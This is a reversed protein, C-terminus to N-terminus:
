NSTTGRGVNSGKRRARQEKKKEVRTAEYAAVGSRVQSRWSSRDQALSDWSKRPIGCNDLTDGLMDKYRKRPRGQTRRGLCLEGYFIQKPLRNDPMRAVHGSWRLQNRSILAFISVTGARELIETDPIHDFSQVRLLKRLCRMHFSNLQRVHRAYVTWSESSYLLSPIVVAHYVELKTALSLGRRTWVNKHLGGFAASAQAIRRNVEDDVSVNASITSGLYIFKQVPKLTEGEVAISPAKYVKGPAPQYLVETKKTSITLGFDRCAASFLDMSRQMEPESHANLACDDAFLLDRIIDVMVKTKAKLKVTNGFVSCDTRYKFEIGCDEERFADSLMASFMISFLTPALVCGQKVGNTVPFPKSNDGAEQVSAHMGDHFQRVMNIFKPPCGFKAMIRWLGERSVTDFAKTM